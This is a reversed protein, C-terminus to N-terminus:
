ELDEARLLAYVLYVLLLLTSASALWIMWASMVPRGTRPQAAKRLRHYAGPLYCLFGCHRRHLHHGDQKEWLPRLVALVCGTNVSALSM